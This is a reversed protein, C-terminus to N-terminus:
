NKEFAQKFVRSAIPRHTGALISSRGKLPLRRSLHPFPDLEHKHSESLPARRDRGPSFCIKIPLFWRSLENFDSKRAAFAPRGKDCLRSKATCPREHITIAAVGESHRM